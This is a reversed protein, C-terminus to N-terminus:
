ALCSSPSKWCPHAPSAWGRPCQHPPTARSCAVKSRRPGPNLHGPLGATAELRWLQGTQLLAPIQVRPLFGVLGRGGGSTGLDEVVQQGTEGWLPPQGM